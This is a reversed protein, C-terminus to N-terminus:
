VGVGMEILKRVRTGRMAWVSTANGEYYDSNLVIEFKGDDDIDAITRIYNHQYLYSDIVVDLLMTERSTAAFGDYCIMVMAFDRGPTPMHSPHDQTTAQIVLEKDGDGELDVLVAQIQPQPLNSYGKAKLWDKVITALRPDSPAVFTVDRPWSAVGGSLFVGRHWEDEGFKVWFGEGVVEEPEVELAEYTPGNGWLMVETLNKSPLSPTSPQRVQSYSTGNIRAIILGDAILMKEASASAAVASILCLTGLM